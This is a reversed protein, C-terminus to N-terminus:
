KGYGSKKMEKKMKAHKREAEEYLKQREKRERKIRKEKLREERRDERCVKLYSWVGKKMDAIKEEAKELKKSAELYFDRDISHSREYSEKETELDKKQREVMRKYSEIESKLTKVEDAKQRELVEVKRKWVALQQGQEEALRNPLNLETQIQLFMQSILEQNPKLSGCREMVLCGAETELDAIKRRASTESVGESMLLNKLRSMSSPYRKSVFVLTEYNDALKKMVEKSQMRNGGIQMKRIHLSVSRNRKRVNQRSLYKEKVLYKPDSFASQLFQFLNKEHISQMSQYGHMSHMVFPVLRWVYIQFDTGESAIIPLAMIQRFYCSVGLTARIKPLLM